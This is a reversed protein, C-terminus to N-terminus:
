EFRKRSKSISVCIESVPGSNEPHWERGRVAGCIIGLGSIIRLNSRLHDRVMFSGRHPGHIIGGVFRVQM